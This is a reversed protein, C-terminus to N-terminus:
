PSSERDDLAADDDESDLEDDSDLEADDDDLDSDAAEVGELGQDDSALEAELAEFDADDDDDDDEAAEALLQTLENKLSSASGGDVVLYAEEATVFTEVVRELWRGQTRTGVGLALLRAYICTAPEVERIDVVPQAGFREATRRLAPGAWLGRPEWALRVDPARERLRALAEGVEREGSSGPRLSPPTRLVLWRAQLARQVELGYDLLRRGEPGSALCGSALVVSFVFGEPARERYEALRALKPLRHPEAHLELFDFKEAYNLFSGKISSQGIHLLM